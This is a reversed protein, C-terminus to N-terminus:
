AKIKIEENNPWVELETLVWVMWEPNVGMIEAYGCRNKLFDAAEKAYLPDTLDKLARQVVEWMLRTPGTWDVTAEKGIKTGLGPPTFAYRIKKIGASLELPIKSKKPYDAVASNSIFRHSTGSNMVKRQHQRHYHKHCLGLAKVKMDCEVEKCIKM